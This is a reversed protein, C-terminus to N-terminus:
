ESLRITGTVHTGHWSSAHFGSADSYYDGADSPDADRGNGDNSNSVQAIFDYGAVTQGALDPHVTIGTDLVAVVVGTGHTRDWAGLLDIGYTTTTVESLDWQQSWYPDNPATVDAHAIADPEVSSVGPRARLTAVTAAMATPALMAGLRYVDGGVSLTRQWTAPQGAAASVSAVRDATAGVSPADADANAGFATGPSGDAWRVIVQDSAVADGPRPGSAGIGSAVGPMLAAVLLVAAAVAALRVAVFSRSIM